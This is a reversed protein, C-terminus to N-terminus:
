PQDERTTIAAGSEACPSDDDEGVVVADPNDPDGAYLMPPRGEAKHQLDILAELDAVSLRSLDFTAAGEDRNISTPQQRLLLLKDM